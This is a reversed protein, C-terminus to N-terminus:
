KEQERKKQILSAITVMTVLLGQVLLIPSKQPSSSKDIDDGM